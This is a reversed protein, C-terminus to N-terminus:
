VHTGNLKTIQTNCSDYITARSTSETSSFVERPRYSIILLDCDMIELRACRLGLPPIITQDITSREATALKIRQDRALRIIANVSM